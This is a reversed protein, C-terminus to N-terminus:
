LKQYFLNARLVIRTLQPLAAPVPMAHLYGRAFM